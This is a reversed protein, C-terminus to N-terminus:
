APKHCVAEVNNGDPDRVFAGYYHEHYEPWVKPAHLEEAGAALAAAHFADVAARDPASFAIHPPHAPPRTPRARTPRALLRPVRRRLRHRHRLGDPPPRRASRARRRLVGCRGRHRCMPHQPPRADRSRSAGLTLRAAVHAGPPPRDAPGLHRRRRAALRRRRRAARADGPVAGRPRRAAVHRPRGGGAGPPAQRRGPPHAARGAALRTASRPGHRVLDVVIARRTPDALAGFLADLPTTRVATAARECWCRPPSPAPGCRASACRGPSAPRPPRRRRRWCADRRHAPRRRRDDPPRALDDGPRRRGVVHVRRTATTPRRRRPGPPQDGRRRRHRRRRGAPGRRGALRALGGPTAILAWLQDRDVDLKSRGSWRCAMPNTCAGSGIAVAQNCPSRAPALNIAVM